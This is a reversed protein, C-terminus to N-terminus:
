PHESSLSVECSHFIIQFPSTLREPDNRLCHRVSSSGRQQWVAMRGTQIDFAAPETLRLRPLQSM